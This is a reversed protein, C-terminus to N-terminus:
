GESSGNADLTCRGDLVEDGATDWSTVVGERDPASPTGKKRNVKRKVYENRAVM